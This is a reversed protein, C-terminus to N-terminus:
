AGCPVKRPRFTGFKKLLRQPFAAIEAQIEAGALLSSGQSKPVERLRIASFFSAGSTHRSGAWATNGLFLSDDGGKAVFGIGGCDLNFPGNHLTMECYTLPPFGVSFRSLRISFNFPLSWQGAPGRRCWHSWGTGGHNPAFFVSQAKRASPSSKQRVPWKAKPVMDLPPSFIPYCRKFKATGIGPGPLIRAPIRRGFSTPLVDNSGRHSAFHINKNFFGGDLVQQYDAMLKMLIVAPKEHLNKAM